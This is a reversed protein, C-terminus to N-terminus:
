LRYLREGRRMVVRAGLRRAHGRIRRGDIVTSGAATNIHAAITASTAPGLQEMAARVTEDTVPGIPSGSEAGKASPKRATSAKGAPKSRQSGDRQANSAELSSAVSNILKTLESVVNNLNDAVVRLTAPLGKRSNVSDVTAALSLRYGRELLCAVTQGLPPV